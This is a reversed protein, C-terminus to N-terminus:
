NKLYFEVIIACIPKTNCVAIQSKSPVQTNEPCREQTRNMLDNLSLWETLHATGQRREDAAIVHVVLSCNPGRFYLVQVEEVVKSM